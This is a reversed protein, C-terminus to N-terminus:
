SMGEAPAAAGEGSGAGATAPLPFRARVLYGGRARPGIEISGGVSAVRERMGRQGLGARGDSSHSGGLGTDSAELEVADVLYRVRLEATAGPGAHKRTNTLAEQAVRYASLAVTAPVARPEGIVDLRTPLGAATTESVLEALQGIGRTSTSRHAPDDADAGDARLAGLLLHLEDVATRANSEITLLAAAAQAPDRELVRRAAGAQVGMVSVHHAVVDHLERAIRVRELAIAQAETRERESALERTLEVLEARERASRYASDGFYWAGGFYLINTIIQILGYALYPSILGDRSLAPLFATQGATVILNWFLWGFMGAVIVIRLVTARRRHRSWAGLTYFAVFLCINSFLIDAVGFGVGIPFLLSGVIAVAEPWRRRFALSLGTAGAWMLGQWLPADGFIGSRVTLLVSVVTGLTLVAAFIADTRYGRADPRPRLWDSEATTTM